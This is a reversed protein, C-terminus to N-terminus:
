FLPSRAWDKNNTVFLDILEKGDNIDQWQGGELGSSANIGVLDENRGSRATKSIFREDKAILNAGQIFLPEYLMQPRDIIRVQSLGNQVRKFKLQGGVIFLLGLM